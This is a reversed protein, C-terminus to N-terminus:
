RLRGLAHTVIEQLRAFVEDPPRNGALVCVREPEERAIQLYGARVREHFRLDEAEIRDPAGNEAARGRARRRQEEPPLDLLLTLNPWRGLTAVRHLAAILTSDMGRAYGQYATTSDAFRDALVIGGAALHPLVVQRMLQARAACFLLLETEPGPADPGVVHKVLRRLEEGVLTGGPERTERLEYGEARLWAGLRAIQTSKGALEPGEFSIFFGGPISRTAM